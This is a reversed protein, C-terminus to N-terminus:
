GIKPDTARLRIRDGTGLKSRRMSINAKLALKAPNITYQTGDSLNTLALMNKAKDVETVKMDDSKKAISFTKDFRVVDDPRYNRALLLDVSDFHKSVLRQTQLPKQIAGEAKLGARIRGELSICTPLLLQKIENHNLGLYGTTPLRQIYVISVLFAM